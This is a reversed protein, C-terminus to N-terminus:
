TCSASWCSRSRGRCASASLCSRQRSRRQPLSASDGYPRRIAKRNRLLLELTIGTPVAAMVGALVLPPLAVTGGAPGLGFAVAWAVGTVVIWWGSRRVRPQLLAWQSMGTTTGVVAGSLLAIEGPVTLAAVAVGFLWGAATSIVWTWPRPLRRYLVVAQMVGVGIGATAAGLTPLLLWGLVWGFTTAMLWCFFFAWDFELLGTKRESM